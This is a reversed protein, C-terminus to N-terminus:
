EAKKLSILQLIVGIVLSYYAYEALKEAFAEDGLSLYIAASTLLTMFGIIFPAGLNEKFYNIVRKFLLKKIRIRM